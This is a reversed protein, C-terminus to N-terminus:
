IAVIQFPRHGRGPAMTSGGSIVALPLMALRQGKRTLKVM